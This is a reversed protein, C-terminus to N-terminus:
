ATRVFMNLLNAGAYKFLLIQVGALAKALVRTFTKPQLPTDQGLKADVEAVINDSTEQTTPTSLSM